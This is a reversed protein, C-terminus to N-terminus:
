VLGVLCHGTHYELYRIPFTPVAILSDTMLANSHGTAGTVLVTSNQLDM